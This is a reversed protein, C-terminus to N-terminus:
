TKLHAISSILTYANILTLRVQLSGYAYSVTQMRVPNRAVVRSKVVREAGLDVAYLTHTTEKTRADFTDAVLHLLGNAFVPTEIIGFTQAHVPIHHQGTLNLVGPPLYPGFDHVWIPASAVNKSEDFLYM